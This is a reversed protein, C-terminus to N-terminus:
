GIREGAAVFPGLSHVGGSPFSLVRLSFSTVRTQVGRRQRWFAGFLGAISFPLHHLLAELAIHELFRDVGHALVQNFLSKM